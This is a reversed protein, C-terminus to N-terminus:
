AREEKKRSRHCQSFGKQLLARLGNAGIWYLSLPNQTVDQNAYRSAQPFLPEENSRLAERFSAHSAVSARQPLLLLTKSRRHVDSAVRVPLHSRLFSQLALPHFM